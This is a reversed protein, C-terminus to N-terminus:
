TKIGNEEGMYREGTVECPEEAEMCECFAVVRRTGNPVAKRFRPCMDCRDENYWLELFAITYTGEKENIGVYSPQKNM